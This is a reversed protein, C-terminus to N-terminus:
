FKNYKTSSLYFRLAILSVLVVAVALMLHLSSFKLGSSHQGLQKALRKVSTKLKSNEQELTRKTEEVVQLKHQLHTIRNMMNISDSSDSTVGTDSPVTRQEFAAEGNKSNSFFQQEIRRLVLTAMHQLDEKLHTPGLGIATDNVELIHFQDNKKDHIADVALIDMGGFLTGAADAWRKFDDTMDVDELVSSGVNGKWEGLTYRKYARYHSGIKQIRIEYDSDVFSEVSCHDGHLAIISTLDALRHHDCVKAKGFGAHVDGVKVVVPFPPTFQLSRHSSYFNQKILPLGNEAVAGDSTHRSMLQKLAGHVIPRSLCMYVSELSNVSPIGAHMFALLKNRHDHEHPLGTVIQRILLFDPKVQVSSRTDPRAIQVVCGGESPDYVTVSHIDSWNCQEIRLQKFSDSIDSNERLRNFQHQIIDIYNIGRPGTDRAIVLLQIFESNHQKFM